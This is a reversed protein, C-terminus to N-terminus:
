WSTPYEVVLVSIRPQRFDAQISTNEGPAVSHKGSSPLGFTPFPLTEYGFPYLSPLKELPWARWLFLQWWAFSFHRALDM